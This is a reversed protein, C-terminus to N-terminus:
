GRELLRTKVELYYRFNDLSIDPPVAHDIIPLYGGQEVLPPIKAYVEADIAARDKALEMKDIGGALALTPYSKRVLRPDMGSAQELPWLCDIGAEILLPILAWMDGDSDMWITKIGAAKMRANMRQYRPLFFKRFIGPSILPGGKGACDEFYNFSDCDTERLAREILALFFETAFELMADVLEPEDYFLYSIEETGVWNRLWSYLGFSGNNLLFLPYDRTRWEAVKTDWDAPYRAPSLPDYRKTMELFSARDTVPHSLYQDMSMRTGRVTGEKLAKTVIGNGHRATLYREDEALVEYDFQPHMGIDLGVFDRVDLGFYSEGPFFNGSVTEPMGEAVWRETTQGWLCLEFNPVREVSQFAMVRNYRERLTM